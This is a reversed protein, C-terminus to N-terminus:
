DHLGGHKVMEELHHIMTSYIQEASFRSDFVKRAQEAMVQRRDSERYLRLVIEALEAPRDPDYTEGCAAHALLSETEGRLSSVVPLGAALYEFVKNPLSQPAGSTYAALGLRSWGKLVELKAVDMWGTFVVNTLDTAARSWAEFNDGDGSLVFQIDSGARAQVERAAAIVPLLDYTRGFVGVFWCIFRGPDVGLSGLELIAQERQGESICAEQHGLPFVADWQHRERGAKDLGWKLYTDSIGMVASCMSFARRTQIDMWGIPLALLPRAIKPLVSRFIDPWLDRVDLLVPVGHARGYEVCAISLEITPFSCLVIDPAIEQPALRRFQRAVGLHNLIRRISINHSYSISDLFRIRYGPSIEVVRTGLQRRKKQVHDFSSTWWTVTHGEKALMEAMVGTRLLRGRGADTPVPEGVTVLWVNM